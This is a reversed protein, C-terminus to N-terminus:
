ALVLFAVIVDEDQMVRIFLTLGCAQQAGRGSIVALLFAARLKALDVAPLARDVIAGDIGGSIEVVM